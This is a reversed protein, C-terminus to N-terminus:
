ALKSIVREPLATKASKPRAVAISELVIAIVCLEVVLVPPVTLHCAGSSCLGM